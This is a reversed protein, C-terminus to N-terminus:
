VLVNGLLRCIMCEGLVICFSVCDDVSIGGDVFFRFYMVLIM